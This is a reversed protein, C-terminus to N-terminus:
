TPISRYHCKLKIRIDEPIFQWNVAVGRGNREILWADVAKSLAERDAFRQDLCQRSLVSLEIEAMNVRSGHKPAHHM